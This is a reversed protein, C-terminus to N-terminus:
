DKCRDNRPNFHTFRVCVTAIEHYNGSFLTALKSRGFTSCFDGSSISIANFGDTSQRGQESSSM